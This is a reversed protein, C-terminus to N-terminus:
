TTIPWMLFFFIWFLSPYRLWHESWASGHVPLESKRFKGLETQEDAEGIVSEVIIPMVMCLVFWMILMNCNRTRYEVIAYMLFRWTSKMVRKAKYTEDDKLVNRNKKKKQETFERTKKKTEKNDFSKKKTVSFLNAQCVGWFIDAEKINRRGMLKKRTYGMKSIYIIRDDITTYAHGM